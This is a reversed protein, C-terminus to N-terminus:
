PRRHLRRLLDANACFHAERRCFREFSHANPSYSSFAGVFFKMTKPHHTFFVVYTNFLFYFFNFFFNNNNFSWQKTSTSLPQFIFKVALSPGLFSTYLWPLPSNLSCDECHTWDSHAALAALRSLLTSTSWPRWAITPYYTEPHRQIKKAWLIVGEQM